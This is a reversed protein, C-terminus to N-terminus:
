KKEKLVFLIIGAVGLGTTQINQALEPDLVIGLSSLIATLGIYSTPEKLRELLWNLMLM